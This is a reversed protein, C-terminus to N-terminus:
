RLDDKTLSEEVIDARAAINEIKRALARPTVLDALMTDVMVFNPKGDIDRIAFAGAPITLNKRLVAEYHKPNAPGCESYIVVLKHGDKDAREFFLAVKQYRDNPLSLRFQYSKGSGTPETGLLEATREVCEVVDLEGHSPLNAVADRWRRADLGHDQGTIQILAECADLSLVGRELLGILPDVAERARLEGLSEVAAWAVSENRSELCQLLAEVARGAVLKQRAMRRTRPNHLGEVLQSVDHDNLSEPAM